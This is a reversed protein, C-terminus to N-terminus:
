RGNKIEKVIYLTMSKTLNEPNNFVQQYVKIKYKKNYGPMWAPTTLPHPCPNVRLLPKRCMTKNRYILRPELQYRKLITACKHVRIDPHKKLFSTAEKKGKFIKGAYLTKDVRNQLFYVYKGALKSPVWSRAVAWNKNLLKYYKLIQPLINKELNDFYKCGVIDECDVLCSFWYRWTYRKFAQPTDCYFLHTDLWEEYEIRLKKLPKM